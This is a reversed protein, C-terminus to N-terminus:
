KVLIDKLFVCLTDSEIPNSTAGQVMDPKGGGKGDYKENISQAIKKATVQESILDKSVGVVYPKKNDTAYIIAISNTKENKIQDVMEKMMKLDDQESKMIYVDIGNIAQVQTDLSTTEANEKTSKGEKLQKKISNIKREIQRNDKVQLLKAIEDLRSVEANLLDYAARSTKAIIRRTGSGVSEEKEIKFLGIEAINKVHIGGCLEISFDGIQVVRVEDGYKDGFLAVAGLSRAKEINMTNIKVDHASFIADNIITEVEKIQEHTVKEYHNFDFRLYEDTVYSGAQKVHDGVVVQLAKHLLHTASHNLSIRHRYASDVKLSVEDNVQLKPINVLHLHQQNPAKKVDLVEYVVGDLSVTGRDSIQGGSEAYFPTTEVAMYGEGELVDVAKGDVFLGIVKSTSEDNDYGIFTSKEKFALLDASQSKMSSTDKFSARALDKQKSLYDQYEEMNVHYGAEKALEETLEVPFGYTDSLKFADEGSIVKDKSNKKVQEFLKMGDKLTNHFREEETKVMKTSLEISDQLYPYAEQMHDSIFKVLKYLFPKKLGLELGFRSARRLLRKLVYGRGENSFMAGDALAFTIAKMHDAIVRFAKQNDAYKHKSLKEIYAIIPMFLDTEFNTPTDQVISTLRELGMGTDINKRPLPKYEKRPKDEEANFQSFVINWVEIYRDNELDDALLTIGVKDPDYKAGRDYFIESNPGAPGAGIEWYNDEMRFIHDDSLGIKNHWIDYAEDDDTYITVYLKKPDLGMWKKSTLFEWAYAIADEKFYDGISFNGLMEFITHHRATVGVNDIDNTRLSRQSNVIRPNKVSASGDFYKKLVSVGSNIWLLSPDNNPILGASPEVLHNKEAFFDLFMKRIENSTLKKMM